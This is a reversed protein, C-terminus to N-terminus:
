YAQEPLEGWYHQVLGRRTSGSVVLVNRRVPYRPDATPVALNDWLDIEQLCVDRFWLRVDDYVEGFQDPTVWVDSESNTGPSPRNARWPVHQLPIRSADITPYTFLEIVLCGGPKLSRALSRLIDIRSQRMSLHNLCIFSFAIDYAGEPAGGCDHGDTVWFNSHELLPSAAAHQLMRASIDVGDVNAFGLEVFAEMLRGVGCGFDLLRLDFDIPAAPDLRRRLYENVVWQAQFRAQERRVAYDPAVMGEAGARDISHTDYVARQLEAYRTVDDVVDTM